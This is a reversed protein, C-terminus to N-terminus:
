SIAGSSFQGGLGLELALGLGFGSGSRSAIKRVGFFQNMKCLFTWDLNRLKNKLCFISEHSIFIQKRKSNNLFKKLCHVFVVWPRVWRLSIFFYHQLCSGLEFHRYERVTVASRKNKDVLFPTEPTFCVSVTFVVMSNQM